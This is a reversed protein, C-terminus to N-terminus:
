FRLGELLSVAGKIILLGAFFYFLILLSGGRISRSGEKFRFPGRPWVIREDSSSATLPLLNGRGRLEVRPGRERVAQLSVSLGPLMLPCAENRGPDLEPRDGPKTRHPAPCAGGAQLGM